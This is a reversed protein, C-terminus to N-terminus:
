ALMSVEELDPSISMRIQYFVSDTLLTFADMDDMAESM